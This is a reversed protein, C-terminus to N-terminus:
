HIYSITTKYFFFFWKNAQKPFRFGHVVSPQIVIHDLQLLSSGELLPLQLLLLILKRKTIYIYINKGFGINVCLCMGLLQIVIISSSLITCPFLYLLIICIYIYIYKKKKYTTFTFPNSHNFRKKLQSKTTAKSSIIKGSTYIRYNTTVHNQLRIIIFIAKLM